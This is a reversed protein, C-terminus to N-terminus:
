KKSKKKEKKEKKEKKPEENEEENPQGEPPGNPPPAGSSEEDDRQFGGDDYQEKTVKEELAIIQDMTMNYWDKMSAMLKRHSNTFLGPYTSNMVFKEVATQLGWWKFHFKVVKICMTMPGDYRTVWPPIQKEDYKDNSNIPTNINAEPCVFGHMDFEPKDPEVPGNIVDLYVIKREKLEEKSLGIINDPIEMGNTYNIHQSEISLVFDKGMGPVSYQTFYHPFANWSKEHFHLYKDPVAWRFAAPIKSKIHYIKYTYRGKEHENEFPENNLIEIGEGGGKEDIIYLYNMYRNGIEYKEVNTPVIVRFEIIKM